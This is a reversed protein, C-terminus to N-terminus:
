GKAPPWCGSPQLSTFWDQYNAPLILPEDLFVQYLLFGDKCNFGAEELMVPILPHGQSYSALCPYTLRTEGYVPDMPTLSFIIVSVSGCRASINHELLTITAPATQLQKAMTTTNHDPLMSPDVELTIEGCILQIVEAKEDPDGIISSGDTTFTLRIHSNGCHHESEYLPSWGHPIGSVPDFTISDEQSYVTAFTSMAVAFAIIWSFFRSNM